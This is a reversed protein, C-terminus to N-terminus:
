KVSRISVEGSRYQNLIGDLEFLLEGSQNVGKYRGIIPKDTDYVIVEQDLDFYDFKEYDLIRESFSGDSYEAALLALEVLIAECVDLSSLQKSEMEIFDTRNELDVQSNSTLAIPSFNLGLGIVLWCSVADYKVVEILLGGLKGNNSYIDNPWKIFVTEDLLKNLVKVIAVGVSQSFGDIQHLPVDLKTLLSFTLSEKNSVWERSRQGYGQSQTETICIAHQLTTKSLRKLFANTSDIEVFDYFQYDPLSKSLSDQLSTFKNM